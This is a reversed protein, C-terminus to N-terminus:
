LGNGVLANMDAGPKNRNEICRMFNFNGYLLQNEHVPIDM